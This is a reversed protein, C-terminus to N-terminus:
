ICVPIQNTNAPIQKTNQKLVEETVDILSEANQDLAYIPVMVREGSGLVDGNNVTEPDVFMLGASQLEADIKERKIKDRYASVGKQIDSITANGGTTTKIEYARNYVKISEKTLDYFGKPLDAGQEDKTAKTAERMIAWTMDRAALFADFLRAADNFTEADITEPFNWLEANNCIHLLLALNHVYESYVTILYAAKVPDTHRIRNYEVIKPGAWAEWADRYGCSVGGVGGWQILDRYLTGLDNQLPKLDLEPKLDDDHDPFPVWVFRRPFGGAGTKGKRVFSCYHPQVDLIWAAGARKILRAKDGISPIPQECFSLVDLYKEWFDKAAEDAKPTDTEVQTVADSMSFLIGHQKEDRTKAALSNLASQHWLSQVSSKAPMALKEGWSTSLLLKDKIEGYKKMEEDTLDKGSIIKRELAKLKCELFSDRNEPSQALADIEAQIDDLPKTFALRTKTKGSAQPAVAFTHILPNVPVGNFAYTTKWCGLAGASVSLGYAAITVYPTGYYDGLTRTMDRIPIPLADLPFSSNLAAVDIEGLSAAAQREALKILRKRQIQVCGDLMDGGTTQPASYAVGSATITLAEDFRSRTTLYHCYAKSAKSEDGNFDLTAILELPSYNGEVDLPAANSSFCHFLGRQEGSIYLSGGVKDPVPQNPRRWQEIEPGDDRLYDWGNRSLANRVLDLNDRLYDAVSAGSFTPKLETMRRQEKKSNKKKPSEDFSRATELLRAREEQTITPVNEIDGWLTEYGPSPAIICGGGTGRTEIAIKGGIYALKDSKGIESCRYYVHYGGHPTRETPLKLLLKSDNQRRWQEFLLGGQDFDIVELNGSTQGCVVFLSGFQRGEPFVKEFPPITEQYDTWRVIPHKGKAPLVNLGADRMRRAVERLDNPNLM